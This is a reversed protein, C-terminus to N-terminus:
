CDKINVIRDEPNKNARKIMQKLEYSTIVLDLQQGEYLELDEINNGIELSAIFYKTSELHSKQKKNEVLYIKNSTQKNMSYQLFLLFVIVLFIGMAIFEEM